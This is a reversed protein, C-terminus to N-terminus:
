TTEKGPEILGAESLMKEVLKLHRENQEHNPNDAAVYLGEELGTSVDEVHQQACDLVSKFALSERFPNKVWRLSYGKHLPVYVPKVDRDGLWTEMGPLLLVPVFGIEWPDVHDGKRICVRTGPFAQMFQLLIIV